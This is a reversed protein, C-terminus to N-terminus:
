RHAELVSDAQNVMHAPQGTAFLVSQWLPDEPSLSKRRSVALRLPVHTFLDNWSGVLLGTKGAMAAHAANQALQICYIADHANASAARVMYSPDIYKLSVTHQAESKFYHTIEDRLFMGIDALVPNGSLDKAGAERKLHEQGAGEAVIIVAHDKRAFRKELAAFLGSPGHLDFPVEPILVFNVENLALAANAAIFGSLRGMVKVLGLGHPAGKAEIHASRIAQGALSFATELGFTKQVYSIDNDITKPIGIVGIRLGRKSVEEHIENAARLTGDGGIAFLMSINMRELCDVVEETPQNGRSSALVSGGKEHIEDVSDPTLMVPEHGFKPVFGEYGYRIGLVTRVGYGICLTRVLERIVNNIGPCLGGCTVIAARVKSADFYVKPRPGAKEFAPLVAGARVRSEVEARDHHLLVTRGDEVYDSIGDDRSTSLRIPSDIRAPGLTSVRLEENTLDLNEM